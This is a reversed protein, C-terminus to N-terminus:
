RNNNLPRAAWQSTDNLDNTMLTMLTMLVERVQVFPPHTPIM